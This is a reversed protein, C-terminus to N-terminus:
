LRGIRQVAEQPPRQGLVVILNLSARDFLSNKRVEASLHQTTPVLSIHAHKAESASALAVREVGLQVSRGVVEAAAPASEVAAALEGLARAGRALELGARQRGSLHTVRRGRRLSLIVDRNVAATAREATVVVAATATAAALLM